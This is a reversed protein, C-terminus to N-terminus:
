KLARALNVVGKTRIRKLKRKLKRVRFLREKIQEITANPFQTFIAGAVGAVHPTAMSTGSLRRYGGDYGASLINVGPAAVDVSSIGVNSFSALKDKADIAAVAVINNEDYGSPYNPVADTDRGENGAAAIFLIGANGARRIAQRLPESYGGGGWSANIVKAGHNTAWDIARVADFLSGSGNSRLFKVAQLRCSGCVGTIGVNNNPTAAITGAVHTGHQNDDECEGEKDTIANYCGIIQDALDEHDTDIGTDIIAVIPGVGHSSNVWRRAKIQKLNQEVEPYLADNTNTHVVFNASCVAEKLVPDSKCLDDNINYPVIEADDSARLVGLGPLEKGIGIKQVEVLAANTWKGSTMEYQVDGLLVDCKTEPWNCFVGSTRLQDREVVYQNAFRMIPFSFRMGEKGFEEKLTSCGQFLCVVLVLWVSITSSFADKLSSKKGIMNMRANAAIGTHGSM